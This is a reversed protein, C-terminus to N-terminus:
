REQYSLDVSDVWKQVTKGNPLSLNSKIFDKRIEGNDSDIHKRPNGSVDEGYMISLLAQIFEARSNLTKTAM